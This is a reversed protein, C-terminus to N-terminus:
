EQRAERAAANVAFPRQNQNHEPDHILLYRRSLTTPLELSLSVFVNIDDVYFSTPLAFDPETHDRGTGGSRRYAGLVRKANTQLLLALGDKTFEESQLFELLPVPRREHGLPSRRDAQHSYLVLNYPKIESSYAHLRGHTIRNIESTPWFASPRARCLKRYLPFDREHNQFHQLASV